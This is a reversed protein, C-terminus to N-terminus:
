KRSSARRLARRMVDLPAPQGTWLEFAAAGQHLLMGIGDLRARRARAAGALFATHQKPILDFFLCDAPTSGFAVEVFSEGGLGLSSSNVVLDADALLRRDALASLGAFDIGTRTGGFDRVLRQARARTRNAVTVEAVGADILATLAARAAGGAGILVARKRKLDMGADDLARRFGIVDTNEGHLRDNRRVVTNVAGTRQASPGTSDLLRIIREKHPVTVNFGILGLAHMGAVARGLEAPRVRFAVYTGDIGAAAFAANHMAPSLSHSIPDGIVAAIRTHGSIM